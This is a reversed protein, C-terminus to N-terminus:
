GNSDRAIREELRALKVRKKADVGADGVLVRLQRCMIEVDAIEEALAELEIRKRQAHSIKVILEACEEQAVGLQRFAGFRTIAHTCTSQEAIDRAEFVLWKQALQELEARGIHSVNSM